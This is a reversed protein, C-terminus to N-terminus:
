RNSKPTKPSSLVSRLESDLLQEVERPETARALCGSIRPPVSLVSSILREELEAAAREVGVRLCLQAAREDRELELTDARAIVERRRDIEAGEAQARARRQDARTPVGLEALAAERKGTRDGGRRPNRLAARKRDSADVDVKGDPTLVLWGYENWRTVAGRTVGRAAAYEAKTMVAM